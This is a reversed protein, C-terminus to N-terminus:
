RRRRRSRSRSRSGGRRRSRSRMRRRRGPMTESILPVHLFFVRLFHAWVWVLVHTM